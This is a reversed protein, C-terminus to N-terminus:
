QSAIVKLKVGSVENIYNEIVGLVSRQENSIVAKSIASQIISIGLRFSSYRSVKALNFLEDISEKEIRSAKGKALHSRERNILRLIIKEKDGFWKVSKIAQGAVQYVDDIRVGPRAIGDTKLCYKCHYLDIILENNNVNKIM